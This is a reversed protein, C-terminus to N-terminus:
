LPACASALWAQEDPGLQPGVEAQVAAHYADIWAREADSLLATDILRRDIPALTLPKFGLMPQEAGPIERDEVLVLNEVRIGYEGSKYYGPEDSLIM